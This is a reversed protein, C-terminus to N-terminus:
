FIELTAFVADASIDRSPDQFENIAFIWLLYRRLTGPCLRMESM